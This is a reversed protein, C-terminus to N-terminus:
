TFLNAIESFLFSSPFSHIVSGKGQKLSNKFYLISCGDYSFSLIISKKEGPLRKQYNRGVCVVVNVDVKFSFASRVKVSAHETDRNLICCNYIYKTLQM